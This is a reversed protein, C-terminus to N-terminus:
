KWQGKRKQLRAIAAARRREEREALAKRMDRAMQRAVAQQEATMATALMKRTESRM